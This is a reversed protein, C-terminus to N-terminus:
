DGTKGYPLESWGRSSAENYLAIRYETLYPHCGLVSHTIGKAELDAKLEDIRYIEDTLTRNDFVSVRSALENIMTAM